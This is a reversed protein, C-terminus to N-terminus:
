DAGLAGVGDALAKALVAIGQSGDL